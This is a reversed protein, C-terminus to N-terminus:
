GTPITAFVNARCFPCTTKGGGFWIRLCSGGVVHNCQLRLAPEKESAEESSTSGATIPASDDYKLLCVPCSQEEEPLNTTNVVQLGALYDGLGPREPVHDLIDTLESRLRELQMFITRYNHYEASGRLDDPYQVERLHAQFIEEFGEWEGFFGEEGPNPIEDQDSM